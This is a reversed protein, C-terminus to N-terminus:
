KKVEFSLAVQKNLAQVSRHDNPLEHTVGQRSDEAVTWCPQASGVKLIVKGKNIVM